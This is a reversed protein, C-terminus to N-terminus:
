DLALFRLLRNSVLKILFSLNEPSASDEPLGISLVHCTIIRSGMKFELWDFDRMQLRLNKVSLVMKLVQREIVIM